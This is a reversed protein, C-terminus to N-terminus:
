RGSTSTSVGVPARVRSRRSASIMSWGIACNARGGTASDHGASLSLQGWWIENTEFSRKAGCVAAYSPLNQHRTIPRLPDHEQEQRIRVANGPCANPPDLQM